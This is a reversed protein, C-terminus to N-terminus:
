NQPPFGIEVMEASYEVRRLDSQALAVEVVKLSEEGDWEDTFVFSAAKQSATLARKQVEANMNACIAQFWCVRHNILAAETKASSRADGGGVLEVRRCDEPNSRTERLVLKWTSSSMPLLRSTMKPNTEQIPPTVLYQRLCFKRPPIFPHGIWRDKSKHMGHELIIIMRKIYEQTRPPPIGTAGPLMQDFLVDRAVLLCDKHRGHVGM